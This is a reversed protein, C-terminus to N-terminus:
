ALSRLTNAIIVPVVDGYCKLHCKFTMWAYTSHFALSVMENYIIEAALYNHFIFFFVSTVQVYIALVLLSTFFFYSLYYFVFCFIQYVISLFVYKHSKILLDLPLCHISSNGAVLYPFFFSDLLHSFNDPFSLFM